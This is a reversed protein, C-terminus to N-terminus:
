ELLEVNRHQDITLSYPHSSYLIMYISDQLAKKFGLEIDIHGTKTAHHHASNCLEPSFDFPYFNYIKRFQKQTINNTMNGHHIGTHDFLMRYERLYNYSDYDPQLPRPHFPQGNIKLNLLNLGFNNFVFPNHTIEGNFSNTHLFGIVLSQPISGSLVNQFTTTTTGTQILYSKIKSQTIPYLAVEKSLNSLIAHNFDDLIKVKHLSLRLNKINIKAIKTESILSYDDSNRIFKVNISTNPLLFREMQFFDAHIIIAFHYDKALIGNKRKVWGDNDTTKNANYADDEVFGEATLHTNQADVGYTLVTEMFAKIPYTSSSIDNIQKGEVEIEIQKFLSHPFLNCVSVQDTATIDTSDSIKVVRVTGYLRTLPLQVYHDSDRPMFFEFPGSNTISNTPYIEVTTGSHLVNEVIPATYLDLHSTTLETTDTVFTGTGRRDTM